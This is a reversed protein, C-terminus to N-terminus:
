KRSRKDGAEIDDLARTLLTKVVDTRTFELGPHEKALREAHKDLRAILTKPLRFALQEGPETSKPTMRYEENELTKIWGAVNGGSSPGRLEPHANALEGLRRSAAAIAVEDVVAGRKM